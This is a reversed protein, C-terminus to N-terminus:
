LSWCCRSGEQRSHLQAQPVKPAIRACIVPQVSPSRLRSGSWHKLQCQALHITPKLDRGADGLAATLGTVAAHSAPATWSRGSPSRHCRAQPPLPGAPRTGTAPVAARLWEAPCPSRAMAIRTKTDQWCGAFTQHDEKAKVTEIHTTSLEKHRQRQTASHASSQQLTCKMMTMTWEAHTLHGSCSWLCCGDVAQAPMPTLM